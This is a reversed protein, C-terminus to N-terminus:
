GYLFENYEQQGYEVVDFVVGFASLIRPTHLHATALIRVKEIITAVLAM